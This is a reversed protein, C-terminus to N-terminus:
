QNQYNFTTMETFISTSYAFYACLQSKVEVLYRVSPKIDLSCNIGAEEVYYELATTWPTKDRPLPPSPLLGRKNQATYCSFM